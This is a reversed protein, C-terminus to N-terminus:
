ILSLWVRLSLSQHIVMVITNFSLYIGPVVNKAHVDELSTSM